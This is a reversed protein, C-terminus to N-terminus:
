GRYNLLNSLKKVLLCNPPLQLKPGKTQNCRLCSPVINEIDDTGGKSLPIVHDKTLTKFTLKKHCYVCKMGIKSLKELWQATTHKGGNGIKAAKRRSKHVKDAAHVKDPYKRRRARMKASIKKRSKQIDRHYKIRGLERLREKNKSAWRAIRRRAGIAYKTPHKLQYRKKAARYM